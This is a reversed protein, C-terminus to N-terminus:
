EIGLLGAVEEFTRWTIDDRELARSAEAIDERADLERVLEDMRQLRSLIGALEPLDAGHAPLAARIRELAEREVRRALRDLEQAEMRAYIVLGRREELAELMTQRLTKLLAEAPRSM